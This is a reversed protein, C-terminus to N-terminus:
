IWVVAYIELTINRAINSDPSFLILFLLFSPLFAMWLYWLFVSFSLLFFIWSFFSYFLPSKKGLTTERVVFVTYPRLRHFIANM